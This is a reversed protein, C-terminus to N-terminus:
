APLAAAQDMMICPENTSLNEQSIIQYSPVAFGRDANTWSPIRGKCNPLTIKMYGDVDAARAAGETYEAVYLEAKFCPKSGAASVMPAKWGTYAGESGTLTGGQMLYMTVFDFTAAQLSATISKLVDDETISGLITGGGRLEAVQGETITADFGVQQPDTIKVSKGGTKASGDANIETLVMLRCGYTMRSM